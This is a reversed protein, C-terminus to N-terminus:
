KPNRCDLDALPWTPRQVTKGDIALEKLIKDSNQPGLGYIYRLSIRIPKDAPIDVGSIRPM